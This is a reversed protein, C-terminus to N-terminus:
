RWPLQGAADIRWAHCRLSVIYVGARGAKFVFHRNHGPRVSGFKNLMDVGAAHFDISHSKKNTKPNILTIDIDDGVTARVLKGLMMGDYTWAAYKTRGHGKSGPQQGRPKGSKEGLFAKDSRPTGKELKKGFM